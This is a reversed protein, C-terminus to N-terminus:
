PKTVRGFFLVCNSRKHVILFLFPHDARFVPVPPLKKPPLATEMVVATAAAAETGEENVEVFAKHVVDGIFLSKKPTMGSFDAKPSFADTMGLGTLATKLPFGSTMKFKPLYVEVQRMQLNRTWQNLRDFTISREFDELRKQKAPLLAIMAFEGGKYPAELVQLDQEEAYRFSDKRRMMPVRIEKGGLLTFPDERTIKERFPSQWAGKFYIANTLVLPTDASITGPALLNKIKDKTQKEVWINITKRAADPGHLFDLQEVGGQYNIRVSELYKNLLSYTKEVWLANAVNIEVAKDKGAALIQANLAGFAENLKPQDLGFRLAKAMQSETNGRAGAYAMALCMSVSYPSFILNGDPKRIQKYLDVAFANVSQAAAGSEPAPSACRVTQLLVFVLSLAVLLAVLIKQSIRM